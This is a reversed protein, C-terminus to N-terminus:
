IINQFVEHSLVHDQVGEFRKIGTGWQSTVSFEHMGKVIWVRLFFTMRQQEQEEKPMGCFGLRCVWTHMHTHTHICINHNPSVRLSASM